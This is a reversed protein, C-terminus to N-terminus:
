SMAIDDRKVQWPSVKLTNHDQQVVSAKAQVQSLQNEIDANANKLATLDKQLNTLCQLKRARSDRAAIRNKERRYVIIDNRMMDSLKGIM